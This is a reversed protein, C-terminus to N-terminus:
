RVVEGPVTQAQASAGRPARERASRAGGSWGTRSDAATGREWALFADTENVITAAIWTVVVADDALGFISLFAEPVLDFPSLVYAAAAAVLFLKGATAGRYEGRVTARLLRPLASLREGM